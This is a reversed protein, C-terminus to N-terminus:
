PSLTALSSARLPRTCHAILPEERELVSCRALVPEYDADKCYRRVQNTFNPLSYLEVREFFCRLVWHFEGATWERVHESYQPTNAISAFADRNKNPTSVIAVPAVRALGALLRQFNSVHEIVELCVVLDFQDRDCQELGLRRFEIGPTHRNRRAWELTAADFESAVIRAEPFRASAHSAFMGTGCGVELIRRAGGVLQIAARNILSIEYPEFPGDDAQRALKTALNAPGTEPREHYSDSFLGVSYRDLAYALRRVNNRYSLHWQAKQLCKEALAGFGM